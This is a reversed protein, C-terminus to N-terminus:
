SNLLEPHKEKLWDLVEEKFEEVFHILEDADSDTAGGAYDYEVTNRKIRCANLYNADDEKESGLILPLASITYYHSKSHGTRFGETNLLITCLKLAANYAIGFRWDPSVERRKADIIDRNVINLLNSVERASTRHSRIWRKNLWDQLNM